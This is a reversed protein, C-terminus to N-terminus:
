ANAVEAGIMGLGLLGIKAGYNGRFVQFAERAAPHNPAAASYLRCANFFGKNALIIQSVTYEVVPIANAGWASFVRVGAELFARGFAKVTGAGYFLARMSPFYERIKEVTYADMGWTSFAFVATRAEEKYTDINERTIVEDSLDCVTRIRARSADDFVKKINAARGLFVAKIM